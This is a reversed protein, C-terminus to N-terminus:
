GLTEARARAGPRRVQLRHVVLLLQHALLDVAAVARVHVAGDSPPTAGVSRPPIRRVTTRAVPAENKASAADPEAAPARSSYAQAPGYWWGTTPTECLLRCM